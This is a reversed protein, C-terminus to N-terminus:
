PTKKKEPKLYRRLIAVVEPKSVGQKVTLAVVEDGTLDIRTLDLTLELDSNKEAEAEYAPFGPDDRKSIGPIIGHNKQAAREGKLYADDKPSLENIDDAVLTTNPGSLGTEIALLAGLLEHAQRNALKMPEALAAPAVLLCLLLALTKM